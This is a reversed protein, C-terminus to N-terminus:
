ICQCELLLTFVSLTYIKNELYWEGPFPILAGQLFSQNCQQPLDLLLHDQFMENHWFTFFHELHPISYECQRLTNGWLYNM